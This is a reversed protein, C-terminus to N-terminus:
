RKPQCYQCRQENENKPGLCEPCIQPDSTDPTHARIELEMERQRIRETLPQYIRRSKWKM